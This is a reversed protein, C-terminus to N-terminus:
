LLKLEVQGEIKVEEPFLSVKYEDHYKKKLQLFLEKEDKADITEGLKLFVTVRYRNM